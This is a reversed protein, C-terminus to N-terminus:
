NEKIKIFKKNDEAITKLGKEIVELVVKDHEDIVDIVEILSYGEDLILDFKSVDNLSNFCSTILASTAACVLDFGYEAAKSHGKIEISKIDNKERTIEVKIM